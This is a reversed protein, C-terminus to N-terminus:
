LCACNHGVCYVNCVVKRVVPNINVKVMGTRWLKRRQRICLLRDRKQRRVNSERDKESIPSM